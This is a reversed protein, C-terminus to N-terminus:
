RIWKKNKINKFKKNRISLINKESLIKNNM